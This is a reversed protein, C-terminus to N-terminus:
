IYFHFCVVPRIFIYLYKTSMYISSIDRSTRGFKDWFYIRQERSVFLWTGKNEWVPWSSWHSLDCRRKNLCNYLVMAHALLSKSISRTATDKCQGKFAIYEKCHVGAPKEVALQLPRSELVFTSQFTFMLCLCEQVWYNMDRNFCIYINREAFRTTM